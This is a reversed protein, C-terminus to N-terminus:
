RKSARQIAERIANLQGISEDVQALLVQRESPSRKRMLEIFNRQPTDLVDEAGENLRELFRVLARHADSPKATRGAGVQEGADSAMKRALRRAQSLKLGKAAVERAIKLQLGKDKIGCLFGAMAVGLKPSREETPELMEQVDPHLDLLNLHMYIWSQSKAFLKAVRGIRETRGGERYRPSELIRDVARATEMPTHGERGFNSIVSDIFQEDEDAYSEIFARMDPIGAIGCALYRREGDVLEYDHKPDDGLEKLKVPTRQGEEKISDALQELEERDFHKRPQSKFPRIRARPVVVSGQAPTVTAEM